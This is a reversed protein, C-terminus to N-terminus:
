GDQAPRQQEAADRSTHPYKAFLQEEADREM